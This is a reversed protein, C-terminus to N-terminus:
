RSISWVPYLCFCWGEWQCCWTQNPRMKIWTDLPSSAPGRLLETWTLYRIRLSSTCTNPTWKESTSIRDFGFQPLSLAVTNWVAALLIYQLKGVDHKWTSLLRVYHCDSLCYGKQSEGIVVDLRILHNEMDLLPSLLNKPGCLLQSIACLQLVMSCWTWVCCVVVSWMGRHANLTINALNSGRVASDIVISHLLQLAFLIQPLGLKLWLRWLQIRLINPKGDATM